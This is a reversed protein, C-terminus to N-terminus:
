WTVLIIIIIFMIIIIIMIWLQDETVAEDEPHPHAHGPVRGGQHHPLVELLPAAQHLDEQHRGAAEAQGGHGAEEPEDGPLDPPPQPYLHLLLSSM